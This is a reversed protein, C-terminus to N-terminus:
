GILAIVSIVTAAISALTAVIANIHSSRTYNMDSLLKLYEFNNKYIKKYNQLDEIHYEKLDMKENSIYFDWEKEFSKEFDEVIINETESVSQMKNLLKKLENNYTIKKRGTSFKSFECEFIKLERNGFFRYYFENGYKSIYGCIGFYPISNNGAQLCYNVGDFDASIVYNSNRNYYSVGLNGLYMNDINIAEKRTMHVMNILHNLKGQESYLYNTIYHQCVITFYEDHMQELLLVDIKESRKKSLYYWTYFDKSNIKGLNDYIFQGYLEEDLCKKFYFHYELLAYYSNIQVWSIEIRKIYKDELLEIEAFRGYGSHSYQLHIYDYKNILTPKKYYNKVKFDKKKSLSYLKKLLNAVGENSLVDCLTIGTVVSDEYYDTRGKWEPKEKEIYERHNKKGEIDSKEKQKKYEDSKINKLYYKICEKAEKRM